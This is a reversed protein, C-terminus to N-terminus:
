HSTTKPFIVYKIDIHKSKGHFQPDKAMVVAFQNDEYIVLTKIPEKTLDALLQQLWLSEQSTSSLAVYETEATSVAM